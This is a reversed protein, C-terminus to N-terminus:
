SLKLLFIPVVGFYLSVEDFFHPKHFQSMDALQGKELVKWLKSEYENSGNMREM